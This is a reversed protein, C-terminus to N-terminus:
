SACFENGEPDLLVHWHGAPGHNEERVWTAGLERLSAVTEALQGAEGHVDVHLRNKVTKREPVEQFLLRRGLGVDSAEDFPDDPHRVAAFGRFALRGDHEVVAEAPLQGAARLGQILSTQDEVQYGLAAAWFEAQRRADVSDIVLKWGRVM